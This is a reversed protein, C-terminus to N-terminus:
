WQVSVQAWKKSWDARSFKHYEDLLWDHCQLNPLIDCFATGNGGFEYDMKFLWRPIELHDAVLQCLQEIM